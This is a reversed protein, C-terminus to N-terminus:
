PIKPPKSKQGWEIMRTVQSSSYGGPPKARSDLREKGWRGYTGQYCFGRKGTIRRAPSCVGKGERGDFVPSFLGRVAPFAVRLCSDPTQSNLM